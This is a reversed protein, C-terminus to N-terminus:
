PKILGLLKAIFELSNQNLFIITFLLILFM